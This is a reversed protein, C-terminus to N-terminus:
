ASVALSPTGGEPLQLTEAYATVVDVIQSSTAGAATLEALHAALLRLSSRGISHITGQRTQERRHRVVTRPTVQLEVAIERASKGQRTLAEVQEHRQDARELGANPQTAPAGVGTSRKWSRVTKPNVGFANAIADLTMGERRMAEVTDAREAVDLGRRMVNEQVSHVLWEETDLEKGHIVAPLRTLGALTAAALRRHGARLRLQDGRREVVIPQMVGYRRISDTLARLDGLARRVNHPHVACQDIRVLAVRVDNNM